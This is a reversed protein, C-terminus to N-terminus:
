PGVGFLAALGTYVIYWIPIAALIAIIVGKVASGRPPRIRRARAPRGLYNLAAARHAFRDINPQYAPAM